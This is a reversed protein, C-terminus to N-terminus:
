PIVAEVAPASLASQEGSSNVSAAAYYYTKGSVVTSDTYATTSDLTSNIQSYKGNAASSRYVNYGVADSSYNWSLSVSYPTSTTGTGTLPVTLAPGFVFLSGGDTGVSQPAFTVNLTVSQGADLTLPFTAGTMSFGNGTAKVTTVTVKWSRDNTLVVPVTSSTGTPVQGFSVNSPSASVSESTVGNGGVNLQLTANSANSSFKVTGSTQGKATPIFSVNLDLSDGAILILPLGQNPVSFGSNSATIESVTVSTQGNNTLTVLLTETDGIVVDGFGLGTPTCSLQQTTASARVPFMGLFAIAMGITPLYAIRVSSSRLFFQPLRM